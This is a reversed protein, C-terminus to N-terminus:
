WRTAMSDGGDTFAYPSGGSMFLGSRIPATQVLNSNFLFNQTFGHNDIVSFPFASSWRNLGSLQRGGILADLLGGASAAFTKGKGLPLEYVWNTLSGEEVVAIFYRLHRLEM